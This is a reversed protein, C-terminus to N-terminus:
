LARVAAAWSAGPHAALRLDALGVVLGVQGVQRGEVRRRRRGVVRQPQHVDRHSESPPPARNPVRTCLTSSSSSCGQLSSSIRAATALCTARLPGATSTSTSVSATRVASAVGSPGSRSPAARRSMAVRSRRASSSKSSGSAPPSVGVAALTTSASRTGSHRSCQGSRGAPGTRRHGPAARASGTARSGRRCCRRPTGSWGSGAVDDGVVLGVPEAPVVLREGGPAIAGVRHGVRHDLRVVRQLRQEVVHRQVAVQAPALGVVVRVGVEAAHEVEEEAAHGAGADGAGVARRRSDEAPSGDLLRTM